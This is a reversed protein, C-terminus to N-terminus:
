KLAKFDVTYCWVRSIGETTERSYQDCFPFIISTSTNVCCAVFYLAMGLTQVKTSLPCLYLNTIGERAQETEVFDRIVNATVFPDNAPAFLTSETDIFSERGNSTAEEAAYAKLINEQYMDPQLSPLGFLQIKKANAKDKSVDTIRLNDYGSCIILYDNELEPNHVGQCGEIQRVHTYDSSFDTQERKKYRVPDSYVFDVQIDFLSLYRVLFVLHPRIFGTIDICIQGVTSLDIGSRRIYDRVVEGETMFSPFTFVIDSAESPLEGDSYGYQPFVIWHKVSSNVQCFVSRVRESDNFAAIYLEYSRAEVFESITSYKSKYFFSFDFNADIMTIM